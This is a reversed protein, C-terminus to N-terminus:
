DSNKLEESNFYIQLRVMIRRQVNFLREFKNWKRFKMNILTTLYRRTCDPIQLNMAAKVIIRRNTLWNKHNYFIRFKKITWQLKWIIHSELKVNRPCSAKGTTRVCTAQRDTSIVVNNRWKRFEPERHMKTKKICELKRISFSIKIFTLTEQSTM